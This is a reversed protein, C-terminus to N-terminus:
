NEVRSLAANGASVTKAQNSILKVRYYFLPPHNVM